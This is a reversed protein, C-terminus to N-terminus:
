KIYISSVHRRYPRLIVYGLILLNFILIYLFIMKGTTKYSHLVHDSVNYSSRLSLTNWFLANLINPPPLSSTVPSYLFNCLSSLSGYEESL